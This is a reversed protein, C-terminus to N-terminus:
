EFKNKNLIIEYMSDLQKIAIKIKENKSKESNDCRVIHELQIAQLSSIKQARDNHYMYIDVITNEHQQTYKKISQPHLVVLGKHHIEQRSGDEKLAVLFSVDEFFDGKAFKEKKICFVPLNEFGHFNKLICIDSDNM